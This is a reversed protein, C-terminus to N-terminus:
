SASFDPKVKSYLPSCGSLRLIGNSFYSHSALFEHLRAEIPKEDLLSLYSAIDEEVKAQTLSRVLPDVEFSATVKIFGM